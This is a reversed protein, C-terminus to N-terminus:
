VASVTGETSLADLGKLILVAHLSLLCNYRLERPQLGYCIIPTSVRQLLTIKRWETWVGEM